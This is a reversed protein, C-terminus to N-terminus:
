YSGADNENHTVECNEINEIKKCSDFYEDIANSNKEARTKGGTYINKSKYIWDPEITLWQKSKMEEIVDKRNYGLKELEQLSKIYKIIPEVVKIPKKLKQRYDIFDEIENKFSSYIDDKKLLEEFLKEISNKKQKIKKDELLEEQLQENKNSSIRLEPQFAVHPNEEHPNEEHPNEEHPNEVHPNEVNPEPDLYYEGKGTSFKKYKVYRNNKLENLASKILQEGQNQQNSISRITFNWGNAMSFMYAFLGKAKFSINKDRLFKNPITTFPYDRKKISNSM